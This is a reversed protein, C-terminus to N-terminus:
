KTFPPAHTPTILLVFQPLWYYCSINVYQYNQFSAIYKREINMLKVLIVNTKYLLISLNKNNVKKIRNGTDLLKM